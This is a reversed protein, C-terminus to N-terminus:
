PVAPQARGAVTQFARRPVVVVARRHDVEAAADVRREVLNRRAGLGTQFGRGLEHAQDVHRQGARHM